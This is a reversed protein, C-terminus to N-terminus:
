DKKDASDASSADLKIKGGWSIIRAKAGAAEAEEKQKNANYALSLSSWVFQNNPDIEAARKGAAIAEEYRDLKYLAMGLAHWGDFHDPYEAVVQRFCGVAEELEGIAIAGHGDDMLEDLTPMTRIRYTIPLYDRGIFRAHFPPSEAAIECGIKRLTETTVPGMSVARPRPADSEPRLALAHWNEATSSSTFTIWHAGERLYRARAGNTDETEPLTDYLFWNEVKAGRERLHNELLAAALRGQPLCMRVDKLSMSSFARAMEETTFIRPQLDVRLHLEEIKRATAPGVAAIKVDGLSRIDGTRRLLESFFLDVGNPSSFALWDFHSGFDKLRASQEEPLELPVIRITPIELVDAGLRTLKATLASAQRRTRTVVVRQGLLPLKEFWNLEPRLKVVDGVVTVAPAKFNRKEVLDAITELTGEISEQRATTGWRVLAVPTVQDAGHAMLQTTIQRLREVGMLFIKTGGLAALQNWDLSSDPKTPDEHGTIFTVMSAVGRHTVPIGAYAPAAIASSIGPVVEFPIGAQALVQAEEGGRGFVYPDGGKLRVVCRGTHGHAVLLANIEDQTLTHASATKGAYIKEATAPAWDLMAPNCLYDYILVDAERILQRARLTVLDLSGPGAGVLHVRAEKEKM